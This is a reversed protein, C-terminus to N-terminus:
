AYGCRELTPGVVEELAKLSAPDLDRQYADARGTRFSYRAFRQRFAADFPLGFYTLIRGITADPEALLDEYRVDLWSREPLEARAAEFAELLLVWALGALVVYSRGSREWAERHEARLPGFHWQEPGRYGLWWDMQLWSNAVARGDRIVNLYRADPFAAHLLGARPWGTLKHLYVPEPARALREGFFSQLRAVLWPTADSALLDRDSLELVPSVERGLARYGESPAFRARGKESIWLPMRRFARGSRGAVARAPMGLDELNSLFAVDDHQCLVEHVLTSGCRGTGLVFHLEHAPKM